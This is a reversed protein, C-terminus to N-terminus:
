FLTLRGPGLSNYATIAPRFPAKWNGTGKYYYLNGTGPHETLLDPRGDRDADGLAIFQDYMGWGSGIRTRAAFTGDGKGLYLWLVGATDRAVLDGAPGGGINGTAVIKNYAGWGGGVKTRDAFPASISGTGKYLWLAGTRDTALLDPRGDGTLDSGATLKDYVGWGGGVKVRPALARGTGTYLWLVGSRDRGLVDAAPSGGVNGPALLQDHVGWGHGLQEPTLHPWSGMSFIADYRYLRGSRDRALLDTTSNDDFDHPVPKRVIKFTGTREVAPGIGNAPRATMRWTYDGNYAPFRHDPADLLGDWKVSNTTSGDIYDRLRVVKKTENHTLEVRIGAPRSFTWSMPVPAPTRDFDLVTPVSESALGLTTPVKSNALLEAVPTGDTGASIRYLGEGEALTGGSVVQTGEPGPLGQTLDDLLKVTAGTTLSRATLAHQPDDYLANYGGPKGYTLWDGVLEIPVNQALGLPLRQTAGNDRRVTVLTSEYDTPQEVWAVHTASLATDSTATVRGTDYEEIVSRSKLDVVAVRSKLTGDVTGTYLAVATDPSDIWVRTIAADRPLGTVTDDVLTDGQKGIVHIDRGGTSNPATAVLESGAARARDFGDGLASVDIVLPEAGTSMDYMTYVAGDAKMVTDTRLSSTYFGTPLSTTVGDKYRTWQYHREGDVLRITLFGTPGAGAFSGGPYPVADQEASQGAAAVVAGTTAVAAPATVLTGAVATVTSLTLIAAALRRGPVTHNM